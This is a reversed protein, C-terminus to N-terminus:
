ASQAPQVAPGEPERVQRKISRLARRSVRWQRGTTDSVFLARVTEISRPDDMWETVREGSQLEKPINVPGLIFGQRRWAFRGVRLGVYPGQFGWIKNVTIARLGINTITIFVRGRESLNVVEPGEPTMIQQIAPGSIAHVRGVMLETKIRGTDRLDRFITWVVAGTSVVAGYLALLRTLEADSM